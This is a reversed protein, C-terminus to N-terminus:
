AEGKEATQHDLADIAALGIELDTPHDVECWPGVVATAGIALRRRTLLFSLLGTMDMGSATDETALAARVVSWATPTFKLLGMYQGQIEAVSTPRGGIEALLGAEDLRFTEADDLPDAFRRAWLSHWDPDYAVALTHRVGALTRATASSYLIDGYSVLVPGARLWPDAAALSAVMTTEAWRENRFVTLGRDEFLEARWGAVVAVDRAGAARLAAVQRDLLTRGGLELLCKPRDMTYPGMRRGRGAALIVARM